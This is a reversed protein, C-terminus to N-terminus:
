TNAESEVDGLERALDLSNTLLARATTYDARNQALAGLSRLANITTDNDGAARGLDLSEQLLPRAAELDGQRWALIGEGLLAPARLQAGADRPSADRASADQAVTLAQRLRKRGNSLAGVRQWYPRLATALRLAERGTGWEL